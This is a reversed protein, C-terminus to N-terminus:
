HDYFKARFGCERTAPSEAAHTGELLIAAVADHLGAEVVPAGYLRPGM